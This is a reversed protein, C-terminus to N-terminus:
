SDITTGAGYFELNRHRILRGLTGGSNIGETDLRPVGSVAISYIREGQVREKEEKRVEIFLEAITKTGDTSM